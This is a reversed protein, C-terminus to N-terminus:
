WSAHLVGIRVPVKGFSIIQKEHLRMLLGPVKEAWEMDLLNPLHLIMNQFAAAVNGTSLAGATHNKTEKIANELFMDVLVEIDDPGWVQGFYLDITYNDGRYDGDLHLHVTALNQFPALWSIREYYVNRLLSHDKLVLHLVKVHPLMQCIELMNAKWVFYLDDSLTLTCRITLIEAKPFHGVRFASAHLGVAPYSLDDIIVTHVASFPLCLESSASRAGDRPYREALHHITCILNFIHRMKVARDHIEEDDFDGDDHDVAVWHSAVDGPSLRSSLSIVSGRAESELTISGEDDLHAHNDAQTNSEPPSAAAREELGFHAFALANVPTLPRPEWSDQVSPNRAPPNKSSDSLREDIGRLDEPLVVEPSRRSVDSSAHTDFNVSGGRQTVAYVDEWLSQFDLEDSTGSQSTSETEHHESCSSSDGMSSKDFHFPDLRFEVIRTNALARQVRVLRRQPAQLTRPSIGTYLFSRTQVMGSM